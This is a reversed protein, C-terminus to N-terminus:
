LICLFRSQNYTNYALPWEISKNSCYNHQHNSWSDVTDSSMCYEVVSSIEDRVASYV